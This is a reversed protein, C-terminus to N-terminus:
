IPSCHVSRWLTVAQHQNLRDTKCLCQMPEYVPVDQMGLTTSTSRSAQLCLDQEQLQPKSTLPFKIEERLNILAQRWHEKPCLLTLLTTESIPSPISTSCGVCFFSMKKDKKKHSAYHGCWSSFCREVLTCWGQTKACSVEKAVAQGLDM